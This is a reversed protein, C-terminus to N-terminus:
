NAEILVGNVFVKQTFGWIRRTAALTASTVSGDYRAVNMRGLHLLNPSYSSSTRGLFGSQLRETDTNQRGEALMYFQLDPLNFATRNMTQQQHIHSIHVVIFASPNSLDRGDQFLISSTGSGYDGVSTNIGYVNQFVTSDSSINMSPCSYMMKRHQMESRANDSIRYSVASSWLYNYLGTYGNWRLMLAGNNEDAYMLMATANQKLKSVCSIARAKEMASNLAPLIMGALIAIIAIVVLLEILTFARRLSKKKQGAFTREKM